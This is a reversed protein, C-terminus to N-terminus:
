LREILGSQLARDAGRDLLLVRDDSAISGVGAACLVRLQAKPPAPDNHIIALLTQSEEAAVNIFIRGFRNDRRECPLATPAPGLITGQKPSPRAEQTSATAHLTAAAILRASRANRASSSLTV